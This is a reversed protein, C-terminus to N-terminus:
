SRFGPEISRLEVAKSALSSLVIALCICLTLVSKMIAGDQRHLAGTGNNSTISMDQIEGSVPWQGHSSSRPKLEWLFEILHLALTIGITVLALLAGENM